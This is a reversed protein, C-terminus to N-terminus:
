VVVSEIYLQARGAESNYVEDQGGNGLKRPMKM